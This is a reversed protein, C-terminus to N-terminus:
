RAAAFYLYSSNAVFILVLLVGIVSVGGFVHRRARGQLGIIFLLM